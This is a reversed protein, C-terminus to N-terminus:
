LETLTVSVEMEQTTLGGYMGRIVDCDAADRGHAVKVYGYDIRRNHTPDFGIWAYGDFVEAWAHTQGTGELFGCVYRAPMGLKRCMAVFVHAYDQCVGKGLRLVDAAPTNVSTQEPAYEIMENVQSCLRMADDDISGTRGAAVTETPLLTLRTPQLYIPSPRDGDSISYQEMSVIGTSVYALSSHPERLSGYIIGNGFSDVGRNLRFDPPLVVHHEDVSLYGGARPECRLMIAHNVVPSGFRLVTQYCYLYRKM